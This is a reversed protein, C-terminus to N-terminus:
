SVVKFLLNKCNVQSPNMSIFVVIYLFYGVFHISRTDRATVKLMACFGNGM